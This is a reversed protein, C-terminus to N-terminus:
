DEKYFALGLTGTGTAYGMLPSLETVWLEPCNFESEVRQKLRQAEDPAYAHMLAVHVLNQGVKDRMIKLMREIGHERSRVAGMFRLVGSSITLLPKINLLSGAQAAIKPIRGTRYVHRITDLLAVFGVKNKMEEAAKVVEALSKGEEAVRAAALAVFGEAVAVTESDLVEISIQPFETKIQEKAACAVDYTASIKASLTVCFIDKTQNSLERFAELFGQPLAASSKFSEPDKLFLEYAESPTIDVWDRYLKDRFYFNLPAIRIGYQEVLERTLCAISDTVIAVKNAM